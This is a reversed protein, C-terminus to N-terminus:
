DEHKLRKRFYSDDSFDQHLRQFNKGQTYWILHVSPADGKLKIQGATDPANSLYFYDKVFAVSSSLNENSEAKCRENHSNRIIQIGNWLIGKISVKKIRIVQGSPFPISMAVNGSYNLSIVKQVGSTFGSSVNLLTDFPFFFFKFHDWTSPLKFSTRIVFLPHVCGKLALSISSIGTTKVPLSVTCQSTVVINQRYGTPSFDIGIM